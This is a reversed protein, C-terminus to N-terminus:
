KMKKRYIAAYLIPVIFSIVLVIINIYEKRFGIDQMSHTGFSLITTVAIIPFILPTAYKLDFSEKWVNAIVALYLSSYLLICFSWIFEFFAEFRQFFDGIGVLRTLQYVPILSNQSAPYPYVLCYLLTILIAAAGSIIIARFGAKKAENMNKLHPLLLNLILIDDFFDLFLTGKGFINYTGKGLIPFINYLKIHPLLFVFFVALIGLVIPVFIAHIRAISDIGGFAAIGAVVAFILVIVEIPTKPLLVMKVMEPFSRVTSALNVFLAFTILVGTIAKLAKGGIKESLGIINVNGCKKYIAISAWFILIMLLSVYIMQIWAANGANIIIRKPFTFFLKVGIVNILLTTIEKSDFKYLKKM